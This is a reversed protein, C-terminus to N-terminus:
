IATLGQQAAYLVLQGRHRLNLKQYMNNVHNGVTKPTIACERAIEKTSRGSAIRVLIARERLSLAISPASRTPPRQMARRVSGILLPDLYFGSRYLCAIAAQLTESSVSRSLYGEVRAGVADALTGWDDDADALLLTRGGWNAADILGFFTSGVVDLVMVQPKETAIMERVENVGHEQRIVHYAQDRLLVAALAAASLRRDAVVALVQVPQIVGSYRIVVGAAETRSV